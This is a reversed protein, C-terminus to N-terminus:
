SENATHQLIVFVVHVHAVRSLTAFNYICETVHAFPPARSLSLALLVAETIRWGSVKM